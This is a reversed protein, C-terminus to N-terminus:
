YTLVKMTCFLFEKIHLKSFMNTDGLEFANWPFIIIFTYNYRYLAYLGDTFTDANVLTKYYSYYMGM